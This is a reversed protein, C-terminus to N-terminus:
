LVKDCETDTDENLETSKIELKTDITNDESPTPRIYEGYEVSFCLTVSLLLVGMLIYLKTNVCLFRSCAFAIVYGVAEWLRYNAFAAEKQGHFLVGYLANTQTQWVADALGWLAPFVFFVPLQDPHPRWFLLGLICTFQTTTALAFLAVRGSYQSLRGFAYSFLSSTAGFCIMVYGVFHLGLACTVYEKTYEGNLFGLELGIYATVPILFVQRRDNLQKFTALFTSCFPEKNSRFELTMDRDINDLFVAVLLMALVGVGVYCGMLTHVLREPPRTSNSPAESINGCSGVGCFQLDSESINVSTSDQGFVISSMLNGWVASSQYLLFLIGFYQNIVDQNKKKDKEAQKRGNITLYTSTASWLPSEGFGLIISTPLLTEWGPYFNGVTYVVNCGMAAVITWKCGLYKIVLPAVFMSSLIISAFQVSASAVGVGEETNLSSQLNLLSGTATFLLLFGFSVVLVNKM